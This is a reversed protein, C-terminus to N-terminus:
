TASLEMSSAGEVGRAGTALALKSSCLAVASPSLDGGTCRKAHGDFQVPLEIDVEQVALARATILGGGCV